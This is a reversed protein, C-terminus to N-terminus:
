NSVSSTFTQWQTLRPSLRSWFEVFWLWCGSGISTLGCDSITLGCEEEKVSLRQDENKSRLSQPSLSALSLSITSATIPCTLPSCALGLPWRTVSLPRSDCGASKALVSSVILLGLGPCCKLGAQMRHKLAAQGCCRLGSRVKTFHPTSTMVREQINLFNLSTRLVRRKRKNATFRHSSQFYDSLLSLCM